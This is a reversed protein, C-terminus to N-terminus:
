GIFVRFLTGPTFAPTEFIFRTIVNKGTTKLSLASEHHPGSTTSGPAKGTAFLKATEVNIRRGPLTERRCFIVMIGGTTPIFGTKCLGVVTAAAVVAM